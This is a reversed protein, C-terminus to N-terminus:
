RPPVELINWMNNHVYYGGESWGGNSDSTRFVPSTCVQGVPAPATTTPTPPTTPSLTSIPPPTTTPPPPATTTPAPTTTPPPTTPSATPAPTTPTTGAGHRARLARGRLVLCEALDADSVQGRQRLRVRQRPGAARRQHADPQPLLEPRRRVSGGARPVVGRVLPRDAAGGPQCAAGGALRVRGRQRLDCQRAPSGPRGLPTRHAPRHEGPAQLVPHRHGSGAQSTRFSTGLEVSRTDSDAPQAPRVDASWLSTETVSTADSSPASAVKNAVLGGAVVAVLSLAAVVVPRRPSRYAGRRHARSHNHQARSEGSEDHLHTMPTRSNDTAARRSGPSRDGTGHGGVLSGAEGRFSSRAAISGLDALASWPLGRVPLLPGRAAVFSQRHGGGRRGTSGTHRHSSGARPVPAGASLVM